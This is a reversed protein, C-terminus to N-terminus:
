RCVGYRLITPLTYIHWLLWPMQTCQCESIFNITGISKCRLGLTPLVCTKASSPRIPYHNCNYVVWSVRSFTIGELCRSITNTNTRLTCDWTCPSHVVHWVNNCPLFAMEEGGFTCTVISVRYVYLCSFFLHAHFVGHMMYSVLQQVVVHQHHASPPTPPRSSRPFVSVGLTMIAYVCNHISSSLKPTIGYPMFSIGM